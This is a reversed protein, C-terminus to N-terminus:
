KKLKEDSIHCTFHSSITKILNTDERLWLEALCKDKFCILLWTGTYPSTQWVSRPFLSMSGLELNMFLLESRLHHSNM